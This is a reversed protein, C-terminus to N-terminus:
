QTLVPERSSYVFNYRLFEIMGESTLQWMMQSQKFHRRIVWGKSKMDALVHWQSDEIDMVLRNRHFKHGQEIKATGQVGLMSCCARYQEPNMTQAVVVTDGRYYMLMLGLKLCLKALKMSNFEHKFYDTELGQNEAEQFIFEKTVTITKQDEQM